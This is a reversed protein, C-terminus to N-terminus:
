ARARRELFELVARNFEEPQEWASATGTELVKLEAGPIMQQMTQAAEISLSWDYSGAIILTPCSIQNFDVPPAMRVIARVASAYGVATNELRMQEYGAVEDPHSRVFAPTFMIPSRRRVVTELGARELHSALRRLNEAGEPTSVGSVTNALVLARVREPHALTFRLAVGGGLSQGVLVTQAISLANLLEQLDNVLDVAEFTPNPLSSRGFGRQDYVLVRHRESFDDLQRHWYGQNDGAAHILTMWPGAGAISYAVTRGTLTIEM